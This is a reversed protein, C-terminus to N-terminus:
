GASSFTVETTVQKPDRYLPHDGPRRAVLRWGLTPNYTIVQGTEALRAQVHRLNRDSEFDLARGDQQRFWALIAQRYVSRRHEPKVSWPLVRKTSWQPQITTHRARFTSIAQPTVETDHEERLHQSIAQPGMGDALLSKVLEAPIKRRAM